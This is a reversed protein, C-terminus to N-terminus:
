SSNIEHFTALSEFTADAAIEYSTKVAATGAFWASGNATSAPRLTTGNMGYKVEQGWKFDDKSIVLESAKITKVNLEDAKATTSTTFWAFTATSLAVLAVLLMAVSSILVRRRSNTKM